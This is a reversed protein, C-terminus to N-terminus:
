SCTEAAIESRMASTANLQRTGLAPGGFFTLFPGVFAYQYNYRVTVPRITICQGGVNLSQTPGVQVTATGTVGGATLYANVRAQVDADQYGPLIAVRAGERAANTLVEYRQFLFGFDMIGLMVLLLTPFVLAFEVLEAGRECRWLRQARNTSARRAQVGASVAAM